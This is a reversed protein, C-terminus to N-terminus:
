HQNVVSNLLDYLDSVPQREGTRNNLDKVEEFQKVLFKKIITNRNSVLMLQQKMNQIESSTALTTHSTMNKTIFIIAHVLIPDKFKQPWMRIAAITIRIFNFYLEQEIDSLTGDIMDHTVFHELENFSTDSPQLGITIMLFVLAPCFYHKDYISITLLFEKNSRIQQRLSDSKSCTKILANCCLAITYNYANSAQGSSILNTMLKIITDPSKSTISYALQLFEPYKSFIDISSSTIRLEPLPPSWYDTDYIHCYDLKAEIKEINQLAFQKFEGGITCATLMWWIKMQKGEYDGDDGFQHAMIEDFAESDNFALKIVTFVQQRDWCFMPLENRSKINKTKLMWDSLIKIVNDNFTAFKIAYDNRDMYQQTAFHLQYKDSDVLLQYIPGQSLYNAAISPSSTCWSQGKSMLALENESGEVFKYIRVKGEQLELSCKGKKILEIYQADRKDIPESKSRTSIENLAIRLDNLSKYANIDKNDLHSKYQNFKILDERIQPLDEEIKFNRKIYCNIVWELAKQSPDAERIIQIIEAANKSQKTDATYAQELKPGYKIALFDERGENLVISILKSFM